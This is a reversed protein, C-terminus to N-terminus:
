FHRLEQNLIFIKLSLSKALTILHSFFHVSGIFEVCVCFVFVPVSM